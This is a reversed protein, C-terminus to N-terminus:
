FALLVLFRVLGMGFVVLAATGPSDIEFDGLPMQALWLSLVSVLYLGVLAGLAVLYPGICPIAVVVMAPLLALFFALRSLMRFALAHLLSAKLAGEPASCRVREPLLRSAGWLLAATICAQWLLELIDMISEM